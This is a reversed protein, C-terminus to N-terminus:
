GKNRMIRAKDRAWDRKKETERKDHLKKGKAIGLELKAIGKPTFYLKLPILTMGERQIAISLKAVERKHVLLKRMGSIAAVSAARAFIRAAISAAPTVM